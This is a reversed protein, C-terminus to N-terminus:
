KTWEDITHLLTHGHGKMEYLFQEAFWENNNKKAYASPHGLKSELERKTSQWEDLLDEDHRIKQIIASNIAHGYEHILTGAFGYQLVQSGNDHDEARDVVDLPQDKGFQDIKIEWDWPDFTAGVRREFVVKTKKAIPYKSKLMKLTANVCKQVEPHIATALLRHAANM